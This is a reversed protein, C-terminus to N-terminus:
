LKFTQNSYRRRNSSTRPTVHPNVTLTFTTENRKKAPQNSTKSVCDERIDVASLDGAVEASPVINDSYAKYQMQSTSYSSIALM